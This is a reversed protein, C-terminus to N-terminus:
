NLIEQWVLFPLFTLVSEYFWCCLEASSRRNVRSRHDNLLRSPQLVTCIREGLALRQGCIAAPLCVAPLSLPAMTRGPGPAGRQNWIGLQSPRGNAEKWIPVILRLGKIWGWVWVWVWVRRRGGGGKRQFLFCASTEGQHVRFVKADLRIHGLPGFSTQLGLHQRCTCYDLQTPVDRTWKDLKLPILLMNMRKWAQLM